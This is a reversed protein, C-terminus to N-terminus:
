LVISLFFYNEFFEKGNLLFFFLCICSTQTLISKIGNELAM